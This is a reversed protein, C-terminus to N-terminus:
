EMGSGDAMNVQPHDDRLDPFIVDLGVAKAGQDALEQVLRGYVQRPWYLGFHLGISRNTRVFSVSAENIFVFGLNTAVAPHFKLAQRVRMDYTMRELREIFDFELLRVVCILLVVGFAILSPIHKFPKLKM